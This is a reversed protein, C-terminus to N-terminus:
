SYTCYAYSGNYNCADDTYYLYLEEGYHFRYGLCNLYTPDSFDCKDEGIMDIVADAFVAFQELNGPSYIPLFYLKNFYVYAIDMSEILENVIKLRLFVKKDISQYNDIVNVNSPIKQGLYFQVYDAKTYVYTSPDIESSDGQVAIPKLHFQITKGVVASLQEVSINRKFEVRVLLSDTADVELFHPTTYETGNIYTATYTLYAPIETLVNNITIYKELAVVSADMTGGNVIDITFEYVDGPQQFTIAYSIETTTDGTIVPANGSTPTITSNATEQYNEFHVNWRGDNISVYGNIKLHVTLVAYAIGAVLLLIILILALHEKNLKKM